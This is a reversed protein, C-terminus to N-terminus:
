GLGFMQRVTVPLRVPRGAGDLCAITVEATALVSGAREVRQYMELSARRCTAIETVVDLADDFRAPSLYEVGIRRVAFVLGQDAKLASQDVGVERLMETRGREFFRLYNAYYVIGVLDTDEYYVRVPWRHIM